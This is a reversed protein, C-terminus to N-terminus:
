NTIDSYLNKIDNMNQKFKEIILKIEDNINEMMDFLYNFEEHLYCFVSVIKLLDNYDTISSIFQRYFNFENIIYEAVYLLYINQFSKDLEYFDNRTIKNYKIWDKFEEEENCYYKFYFINRNKNVVSNYNINFDEFM